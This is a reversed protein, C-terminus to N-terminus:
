LKVIRLHIRNSLRNEKLGFCYLEYVYALILATQQKKGRVNKEDRLALPCATTWPLHDKKQDETETKTTFFGYSRLDCIRKQIRGWVRM